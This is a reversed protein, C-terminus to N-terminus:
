RSSDNTKKFKNFKIRIIAGYIHYHDNYYARVKIRKEYRDDNKKIPAIKSAPINGIRRHNVYVACAPTEQDQEYKITPIIRKDFPPQKAYIKKLLWQRSDGDHNKTTVDVVNIKIVRYKFRYSSIYLIIGIVEFFVVIYLEQLYIGSIGWLIFLIGLVRLCTVM